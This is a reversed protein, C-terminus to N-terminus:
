KKMRKKNCGYPCHHWVKSKAGPYFITKCSQCNFGTAIYRGEVSREIRIVDVGRQDYREDLAETTKASYLKTRM